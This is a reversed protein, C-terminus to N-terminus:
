IAHPQIEVRHKDIFAEVDHRHYRVSRGIKIYPIRIQTLSPDHRAVALTHAKIGLLEAVQETSLLMPVADNFYTM